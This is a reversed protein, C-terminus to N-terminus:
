KHYRSGAAISFARYIQECLMVRALQHPFTMPSMSLRLQCRRKVSESLGFSSGIYFNVTSVGEVASRSIKESLQESSLTKGEICMAINLASKASLYKEMAAAEKELAASIQGESPQDPLRSEALEEVSFSCYGGLRKSYEAVADRWYAEKLKGVCIINVKLM